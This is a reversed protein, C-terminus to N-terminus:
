MGSSRLLIKRIIEDQLEKGIHRTIQRGKMKTTLTRRVDEERASIHITKEKGLRENIDAAFDRSTICVSVGNMTLRDVLDFIEFRDRESACEDLADLIVFTRAENETCIRALITKLTDWQPLCEGYQFPRYLESASKPIEGHSTLIQRLLCNLVDQPRQNDQRRYSFYFYAVHGRPTSTRAWYYLNDIIISALYTKGSGPAGPCWLIRTEGKLFGKFVDSSIFWQASNQLRSLQLQQHREKHYTSGPIWDLFRIFEADLKTSSTTEEVLKLKHQIDVLAMMMDPIKALFDAIEDLRISIKAQNDDVVDTAQKVLEKIDEVAKSNAQLLLDSSGTLERM